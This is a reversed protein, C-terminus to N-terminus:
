GLHTDLRAVPVNNSTSAMVRLHAPTAWASDRARSGTTLDAPHAATMRSGMLAEAKGPSPDPQLVSTKSQNTKTTPSAVAGCRKASPKTSTVELQVNCEKQRGRRSGCTVLQM